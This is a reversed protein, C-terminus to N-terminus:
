ADNKGGLRAAAAGVIMVRIPPVVVQGQRQHGRGDVHHMNRIAARAGASVSRIAPCTCTTNGLLAEAISYM